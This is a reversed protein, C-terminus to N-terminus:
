LVKFSPIQVTVLFKTPCLEIYLFTIKKSSRRRFSNLDNEFAYLTWISVRRFHELSENLTSAVPGKEPFFPVQTDKHIKRPSLCWTIIRSLSRYSNLFEASYWFKINQKEKHTHTHTHRNSLWNVPNKKKDTTKKEKLMFFPMIRGKRNRRRLSFDVHSIWSGTAPIKHRPSLIRPSIENTVHKIKMQTNTQNVHIYAASTM